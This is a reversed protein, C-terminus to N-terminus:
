EGSPEIFVLKYHNPQIEASVPIASSHNHYNKDTGVNVGGGVLDLVGDNTYHDHESYDTEITVKPSGNDVSYSGAQASESIKIFKDVLAACIQWGAPITIGSFGIVAQSPLTSAVQAVYMAMKVHEMRLAASHKATLTHSHNGAPLAGLTPNIPSEAYMMRGHEHDGVSSVSAASSIASCESMHGSGNILYGSGSSLYLGLNSTSEAFSSSIIPILSLVSSGIPATLASSARILKIGARKPSETISLTASVNHSHGGGMDNASYYGNPDTAGYGARVLGGHTHNNEHATVFTVDINSQNYVGSVTSGKIIRDGASTFATYGAPVADGFFALIGGEPVLIGGSDPEVDSDYMAERYPEATMQYEGYSVLENSMIRVLYDAGLGLMDPLRKVDGRQIAIGDGQMQFSIRAPVSLRKLRLACKRRAEIDRHIGLLRVDSNIVELDGTTVGAADYYVSNQPWPDSYVASPTTHTVTVRTPVNSADAGNLRLTGRTISSISIDTISEPAVVADPVIFVGSGEYSWLCEAYAAFMDLQVNLDHAENIYIAARCRPLTKYLSDCYDACPTIGRVTMAAGYSTNTIFDYMHLAPNETWSTVSTRPDTIKMGRVVAEIRPVGNVGAAPIKFVSYAIGKYKQNFGTFTSSLTADVTDQTGKYHTITAGSIATTLGNVIVQQVGEIGNANTASWAIACIYFGSKVVPGAIFVGGIRDEGYLVPLVEGYGSINLLKERPEARNITAATGREIKQKPPVYPPVVPTYIGDQRIPKKTM